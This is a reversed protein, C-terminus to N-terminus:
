IGFGPNPNAVGRRKKVFIEADQYTIKQKFIM